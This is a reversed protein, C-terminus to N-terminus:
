RVITPEVQKGCSAISDCYHKLDQYWYEFVLTIVPPHNDDSNTTDYLIDLLKIVNPHSIEKLMCIERLASSPLGIEEDVYFPKLAVIEKTKTHKAKFVPAHTGEGIKAIKEYIVM